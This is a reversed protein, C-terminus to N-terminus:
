RRRPRAWCNRGFGEYASTAAAGGAIGGGLGGIVELTRTASESLGLAKGLAHGAEGGAWGGILSGALGACAVGFGVPAIAAGLRHRRRHGGCRGGRGAADHQAM